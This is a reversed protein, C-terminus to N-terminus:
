YPIIFFFYIYLFNFLIFLFLFPKFFPIPSHLTFLLFPINHLSLSSSAASPPFMSYIFQFQFSSPVTLKPAANIVKKSSHSLFSLPFLFSLSKTSYAGNSFSLFLFLISHSLTHSFSPVHNTSPGSGNFLISVDNWTWEM